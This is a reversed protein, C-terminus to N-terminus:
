QYTRDLLHTLVLLLLERRQNQPFPYFTHKVSQANVFLLFVPLAISGTKKRRLCDRGAAQDEDTLSLFRESAM